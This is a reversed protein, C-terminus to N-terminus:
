VVGAPQVSDADASSILLAPVVTHLGSEPKPIGVPVIVPSWTQRLTVAFGPDPITSPAPLTESVGRVSVESSFHEGITFM